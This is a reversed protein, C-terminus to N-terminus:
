NHKSLVIILNNILAISFYFNYIINLIGVPINSFLHFSDFLQFFILLLM